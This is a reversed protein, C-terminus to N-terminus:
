WGLAFSQEVQSQSLAFRTNCKIHGKGQLLRAVYAVMGTRSLRVDDPLTILQLAKPWDEGGPVGTAEGGLPM